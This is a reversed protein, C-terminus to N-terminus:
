HHIKIIKEKNYKSLIHVDKKNDFSREIVKPDHKISHPDNIFSIHLISSNYSFSHIKPFVNSNLFYAFYQLFNQFFFAFECFFIVSTKKIYTYIHIYIYIYCGRALLLWPGRDNPFFGKKECRKAYKIYQTAM